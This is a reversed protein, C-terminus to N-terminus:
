RERARGPPPLWPRSPDLLDDCDTDLAVGGESTALIEAKPKVSM